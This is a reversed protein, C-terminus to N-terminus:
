YFLSILAFFKILSLKIVDDLIMYACQMYLRVKCKVLLSVTAMYLEYYSGTCFNRLKGGINICDSM